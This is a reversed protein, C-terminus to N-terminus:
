GEPSDDGGGSDGDDGDDLDVDVEDATLDRPFEADAREWTLTVEGNMRRALWWLVRLSDEDIANEEWFASWPLGTAKRCIMRERSPLLAPALTHTEPVVRGKATVVERRITITLVKQAERQEGLQRGVGPKPAKAM